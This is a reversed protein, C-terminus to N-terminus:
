DLAIVEEAILTAIEDDSLRLIRKYIDATDQGLLPASRWPRNNADSYRAMARHSVATGIEPHPLSVWYDRAKLQIDEVLERGGAVVAAPVGRDMLAEVLKAASEQRMMETALIRELEDEHRKRALLTSFRPDFALAPRGIAACLNRWETDGRVAIACWGGDRCRFANHPCMRPSRNGSRRGLRGLALYELLSPALFHLATEVQALDIYQGKGTRQRYDLAAMIAAVAFGPAIYDTYPISGLPERDPWGTLDTFGAYAAFHFGFGKRTADPGDQGFSSASLMILDENVRRLSDYDLNWKQLQGATFNEVAIDAWAALQKALAQGKPEGLNVALSRKSSNLAAWVGSRNIGPTKDKYPIFFRMQDPRKAYELKIVEAGHDALFKTILPGAIVWTFDLVKLGELPRPGM